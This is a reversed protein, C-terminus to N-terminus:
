DSSWNTDLLFMPYLTSFLMVDFISTPEVLEQCLAWGLEKQNDQSEVTSNKKPTTEYILESDSLMWRTPTMPDAFIEIVAWSIVADKSQDFIIYVSLLKLPTLDCHFYPSLGGAHERVDGRSQRQFPSVNTLWLRLESLALIHSPWFNKDGKRIGWWENDNNAHSDDNPWM